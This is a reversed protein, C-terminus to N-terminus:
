KAAENHLRSAMLYSSTAGKVLEYLADKVREFEGDSAAMRAILLLKGMDTLATTLDSRPRTEDM